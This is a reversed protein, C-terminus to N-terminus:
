LHVQGAPQSSLSELLQHIYLSSTLQSERRKRRRKRRTRRRDSGTHGRLPWTPWSPCSAGDRNLHFNFGSLTFLLESVCCRDVGRVTCWCPDMVTQTHTHTHTHTHTTYNQGRERRWDSVPDGGSCDREEASQSGDVERTVAKRDSTCRDSRELHSKLRSFQVFVFAPFLKSGVDTSSKLASNM